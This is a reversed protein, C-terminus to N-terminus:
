WFAGSIKTELEQLLVSKDNRSPAEVVRLKECFVCVGWFSVFVLCAEAMHWDARLTAQQPHSQHSQPTQMNAM